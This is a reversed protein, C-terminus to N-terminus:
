RPRCSWSAGDTTCNGRAETRDLRAEPNSRMADTQVAAAGNVYIEISPFSTHACVYDVDFIRSSADAWLVVACDVTIAPALLTSVATATDMQLRVRSFRAAREPSKPPAPEDRAEITFSLGEPGATAVDEVAPRGDGNFTVCWDNRPKSYNGDAQWRISHGVYPTWTDAGGIDFTADLAVRSRNPDFGFSSVLEGDGNTTVRDDGHYVSGLFDLGACPIFAALQFHITEPGALHASQASRSRPNPVETAPGCGIMGMSLAVAGLVGLTNRTAHAILRGTRSSM